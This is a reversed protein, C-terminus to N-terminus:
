GVNITWAITLSDGNNVLIPTITQAAFLGGANPTSQATNNFLGSSVVYLGASRIGSIPGFTSTVKVTSSGSSGTQNGNTFDLTGLTRANFSNGSTTSEQSLTFNDQAVTAAVNGTRNGIGIVTWPATNAGKCVGTGAAGRVAGGGFLLKSVCDKGSNVVVNDTQRYTKINGDSDKVVSTVHGLIKIGDADASTSTKEAIGLSQSFPLNTGVMGVVIAFTVGFLAYTMNRNM